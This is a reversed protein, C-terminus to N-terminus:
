ADQDSLGFVASDSISRLAASPISTFSTSRKAFFTTWHSKCSGHNWYYKLSCNIGKRTQKDQKRGSFGCTGPLFSCTRKSRYPSGSSEKVNSDIMSHGPRDDIHLFAAHVSTLHVGLPRCAFGRHCSSCAPIAPCSWTLRGRLASHMLSLMWGWHKVRLASNGPLNGQRVRM